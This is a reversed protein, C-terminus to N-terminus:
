QLSGYKGTRYFASLAGPDPIWIRKRNIMILGREVLGSCVRSTTERPVGLMDGLFTISMNLDIELGGDKEIGFDRSLKCLKAALKRELYISSNTNKLQHMLRKGKVEQMELVKKTLAFDDRMICEFERKPIVFMKCRDLVECYSTPNRVALMHENLWNGAGLIFIIKRKGEHTLNYIMTKGSLQFYLQECPMSAHILIEGKAFESIKGAKGLRVITEGALDQFFKQKQLQETKRM